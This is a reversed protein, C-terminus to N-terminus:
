KREDGEQTRSGGPSSSSSSLDQVRSEQDFELPLLGRPRVLSLKQKGFPPISEEPTSTIPLVKEYTYVRPFKMNLPNSVEENSITKELPFPLVLPRSANPTAFAENLPDDLRENELSIDCSANPRHLHTWASGPVLDVGGTKGEATIYNFYTGGYRKM